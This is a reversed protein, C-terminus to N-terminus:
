GCHVGNQDTHYASRGDPSDVTGWLNVCTHRAHVYVPGAYYKYNGTDDQGDDTDTSVRVGMWKATGVWETAETYACNQGNGANYYLYLTGASPGTSNPDLLPYSDVYSYGTGCVTTTAAAPGTAPVLALAASAVTVAGAALATRFRM